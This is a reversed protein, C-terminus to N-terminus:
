PDAVNLITEPLLAKAVIPESLAVASAPRASPWNLAPYRAV